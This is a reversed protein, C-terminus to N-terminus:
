IGNLHLAMNPRCVFEMNKKERKQDELREKMLAKNPKGFGMKPNLEGLKSYLRCKMKNVSLDGYKCKSM